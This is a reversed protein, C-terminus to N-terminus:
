TQQCSTVSRSPTPPSHVDASGMDLHRPEANLSDAPKQCRYIRGVERSVRTPLLELTQVKCAQLQVFQVQCSRGALFFEFSQNVSFSDGAISYTMKPM